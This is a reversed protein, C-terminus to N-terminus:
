KGETDCIPNFGEIYCNVVPCKCVFESTNLYRICEADFGCATRNNPDCLKDASIIQTFDLFLVVLDFPLLVISLKWLTFDLNEM